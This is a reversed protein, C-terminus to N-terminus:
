DREINGRVVLRHRVARNLTLCGVLHVEPATIMHGVPETRSTMGRPLLSCGIRPMSQTDV